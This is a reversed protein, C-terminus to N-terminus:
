QWNATEHSILSGLRQDGVQAHGGAVIQHGKGQILANVWPISWKLTRCEPCLRTNM